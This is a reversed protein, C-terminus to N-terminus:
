GLSRSVQEGTDRSLSPAATIRELEARMLAARVPETRRWRGLPPVFRAATQPNLPALALIAILIGAAAPLLIKSWGVLRDHGSGPLAWRQKSARERTAAESM